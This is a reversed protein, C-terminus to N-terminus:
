QKYYGALLPSSHKEFFYNIEDPALREYIKSDHSSISVSFYNQKKLRMRLNYVNTGAASILMIKM